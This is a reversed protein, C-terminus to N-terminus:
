DIEDIMPMFSHVWRQIVDVICTVSDQKGCLQATWKSGRFDSKQLGGIRRHSDVIHVEDCLGVGIMETEDCLWQVCGAAERKLVEVVTINAGFGHGRV